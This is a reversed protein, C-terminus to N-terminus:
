CDENEQSEILNKLVSFLPDNEAKYETSHEVFLVYKHISCSKCNTCHQNKDIGCKCIYCDIGANKLDFYTKIIYDCHGFNIGVNPIISKVINANDFSDFANEFETRKTYTWFKTNPNSKIIRKWMDVYEVNIFDGSAHIRVIKIKDAKIQANIAREVYDTANISLWTKKIMSDITSQYNYCGKTAYCGNCHCPCTGHINYDKGNITGNYMKNTPLTSWTWVGKGVKSNGNVLLPNIWGFEDSYIKESTNVKKFEIGYEKYIENKRM